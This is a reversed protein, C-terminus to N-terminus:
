RIRHSWYRQAEGRTARRASILRITEEDDPDPWTWVVFVVDGEIEGIGQWRFEGSRDHPDLDYIMHPDDFIRQAREFDLRHKRLNERAKRSDWTFMM